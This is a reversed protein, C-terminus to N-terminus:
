QKISYIHKLNVAIAGFQLENAFYGMFPSMLVLACYKEKNKLTIYDKFEVETLYFQEIQLSKATEEDTTAYLDIELNSLIGRDYLKNSLSHELILNYRNGCKEVKTLKFPLNTLVGKNMANKFDKKLISNLEDTIAGNTEFGIFKKQISDIYTEIKLSQTEKQQLNNCSYICITGTILIFFKFIKM